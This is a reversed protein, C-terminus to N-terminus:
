SLLFCSDTEQIPKTKKKIPMNQKSEKRPNKLFWVEPKISGTLKLWIVGIEHSKMARM